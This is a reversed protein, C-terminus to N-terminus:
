IMLHSLSLTFLVALGRSMQNGSQQTVHELLFNDTDDLLFLSRCFDSLSTSNFSVLLSWTAMTSSTLSASFRSSSLCLLIVPAHGEMGYYFLKGAPSLPGSRSVHTLGPRMLLVPSLKPWRGQKVRWPVMSSSFGTKACLIPCFVKLCFQLM